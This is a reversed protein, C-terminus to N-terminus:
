ECKKFIAQLFVAVEKFEWREGRPEGSFIDKAGHPKAKGGLPILATGDPLYQM